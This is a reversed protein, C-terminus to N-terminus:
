GSPLLPDDFLSLESSPLSKPEYFSLLASLGVRADTLADATRLTVLSLCVDVTLTRVAVGAVYDMHRIADNVRGFADAHADTIHGGGGGGNSSFNVTAMGLLKARHLDRELSQGASHQLSTILGKLRLRDLETGDQVRMRVAHGRGTLEPQVTKRKHIEHTGYDTRETV